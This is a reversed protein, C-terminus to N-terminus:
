FLYTSEVLKRISRSLGGEEFQLKRFYDEGSESDSVPPLVYGEDEENDLSSKEVPTRQGSDRGKLNSFITSARRSRSRSLRPADDAVSSVTSSRGRIPSRQPSTLFGPSGALPGMSPLSESYKLVPLPLPPPLPSLGRRSRDEVSSRTSLHGTTMTMPGLKPSSPASQVAAENPSIDHISHNERHRRHSRRIFQSPIFKNLFKERISTSSNVSASGLSTKSTASTMPIGGGYPSRSAVPLQVSTREDSSRISVNDDFHIRNVAIAAALTSSNVVHFHTQNGPNMTASTSTRASSTTSHANGSSDATSSSPRNASPAVLALSDLSPTTPSTTVITPPSPTATRPKIPFLHKLRTSVSYLPSLRSPAPTPSFLDADTPSSHKEDDLM